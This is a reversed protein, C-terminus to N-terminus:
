PFRCVVKILGALLGPAVLGKSDYLAVFEMSIIIIILLNNNDSNRTRSV